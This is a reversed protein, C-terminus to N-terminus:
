DWIKIIDDGTVVMDLLPGPASSARHRDALSLTFVGIQQGIVLFLM